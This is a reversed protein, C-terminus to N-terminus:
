RGRRGQGLGPGRGGSMGQRFGPGFGYGTSPDVEKLKGEKYLNFAEKVTVGVAGTFIKVNSANLFGYANPGINGVILVDVRQDVILQAASTGAGRMAACGQNAISKLLKGKEDLILFYQCRGFRPDIQADLDEGVSPITIKISKKRPM